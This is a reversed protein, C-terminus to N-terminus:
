IIKRAAYAIEMQKKILSRQEVAAKRKQKEEEKERARIAGIVHDVNKVRKNWEREALISIGVRFSPEEEGNNIKENLAESQQRLLDKFEEQTGGGLQKSDVGRILYNNQIHSNLQRIM